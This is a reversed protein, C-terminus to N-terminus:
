NYKKVLLEAIKKYINYNCPLSTMGFQGVPNVELFIYNDNEDVILDISGTDLKLIKMLRLLKKEIEESLQYPAFVVGDDEKKRWDVKTRSNKQSFIAMAYFTDMLFFVRLEYKKKIERQFLSPFFADPLTATNEFNIQETYTYYARAKSFDYIGEHIAKNILVGKKLQETLAKKSTDIRTEPIAIELEKALSLVDLKNLTSNFHSSLHFVANKELFRYLHATLFEIESKIHTKHINGLGELIEKNTKSYNFSHFLNIGHRRYWVVKCEKLNIKVGNHNFVYDDTNLHIYEFIVNNDEYDIRHFRAQMSVLWECVKLTDSDDKRSIILIM